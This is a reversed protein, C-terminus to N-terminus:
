TPLTGSPVVKGTGFFAAARSNLRLPTDGNIQMYYERRKTEFARNAPSMEVAGFKAVREGATVAGMQTEPANYHWWEYLYPQMGNSLMVNYLLRRNDRAECESRNLPRKKGLLEYYNVHAKEGGEDFATGFDLFQAHRCVIEARERYALVSMRHTNEVLQRYLSNIRPPLRFIVVDVAGGTSHPSPCHTDTSPRAIYKDTEAQLRDPSWEPELQALAQYYDAYLTEQVSQPRYGDLVMLYHNAPLLIQAQQLRRAVSERVFVTILAGTIAPYETHEGFYVSSTHIDHLASGSGLAVLDEGMESIVITDWGIPALLDRPIAPLTSADDSLGRSILSM